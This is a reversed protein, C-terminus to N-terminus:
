PQKKLEEIAKQADTLFQVVTEKTRASLFCKLLVEPPITLIHAGSRAWLEVNEPSRVSGVIIEVGQFKHFDLWDRLNKLVKLAQEVGQEESIRGAFISIFSYKPRKGAREFGSRLARAALIAQNFTTMTTVNISIGERSLQYIAPLLSNGERDTITVKIVVNPAWKSYERAQSIIEGIKDSTVEASVPYPNILKAIEITRQKIGEIGGRVGCKLCITPNTTVGQCLGWSLYKKIENIDASDIFIKM